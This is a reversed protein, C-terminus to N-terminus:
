INETKPKPGNIRGTTYITTGIFTEEHDFKNVPKLRQTEIRVAKKLDNANELQQTEAIDAEMGMQQLDRVEKNIVVQKALDHVVEHNAM